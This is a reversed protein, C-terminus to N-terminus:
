CKHECKGKWNLAVMFLTVTCNSERNMEPRPRAMICDVNYIHVCTRVHRIIRIRYSISRLNFGFTPVSPATLTQTQTPPQLLQPAMLRSALPFMNRSRNKKRICMCAHRHMHTLPVQQTLITCQLTARRRLRLKLKSRKSYLSILCRTAKQGETILNRYSFLLCFFFYFVLGLFKIRACKWENMAMWHKFCHFPIKLKWAAALLLSVCVCM